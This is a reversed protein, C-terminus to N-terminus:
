AKFAYVYIEYPSFENTFKDIFKLNMEDANTFIFRSFIYKGGLQKFEEPVINLVTEKPYNNNMNVRECVDNQSLIYARGGWEDFYGRLAKDDSLIPAILKRFQKKYELPYYPLMGDITKIQNYELVAPHFGYAVSWEGNYHIANKIKDFLKESYFQNYTVERNTIVWFDKGTAFQKIAGQRATLNQNKHIQYDLNYKIVNYIANFFIQM